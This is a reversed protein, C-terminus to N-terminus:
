LRARLFLAVLLTLDAPFPRPGDDGRHEFWHAVLVRVAQRLPEPVSEASPGFGVRIDIEVRGEPEGPDIAIRPPDSAEDLRYADAPLDFAGAGRPFVRVREIAILPALPSRVPAAPRRLLRLRWSQEILICASVTEVTLRASRILAAVLADEEDGDLRLYARMEPVTVPEVAPAAVRIPIM